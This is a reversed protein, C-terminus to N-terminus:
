IYNEKAPSPPTGSNVNGDYRCYKEIIGDYRCLIPRRSIPITLKVDICWKHLLCHFM